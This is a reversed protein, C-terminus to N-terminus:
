SNGFPQLLPFKGTLVATKLALGCKSKFAAFMNLSLNGIFLTASSGSYSDIKPTM